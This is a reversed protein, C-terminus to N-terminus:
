EPHILDGNAVIVTTSSLESAIVDVCSMVTGSLTNSVPSILLRSIVPTGEASTRSFTFIMSNVLLQTTKTNTRGSSTIVQVFETATTANQRTANFRWELQSGTINCM